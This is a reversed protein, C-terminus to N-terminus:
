PTVCQTRLPKAFTDTFKGIQLFDIILKPLGFVCLFSHNAPSGKKQCEASCYHQDCLSCASECDGRGCYGCACFKAAVVRNAAHVVYRESFLDLLKRGYMDQIPTKVLNIRQAIHMNLWDLELRFRPPLTAMSALFEDVQDTKVAKVLDVRAEENLALGLRIFWNEVEYQSPFQGSGAPFHSAAARIQPLLDMFAIMSTMDQKMQFYVLTSHHTVFDLIEPFSSLFKMQDVLPL